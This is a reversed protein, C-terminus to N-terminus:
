LGPLKLCYFHIREYTQLPSSLTSASYHDGWLAETNLSGQRWVLGLTQPQRTKRWMKPYCWRQRIFVGTKPNLSWRWTTHVGKLHYRLLPQMDLYPWMFSSCRRPWFRNKWLYQLPARQLGRPHAHQSPPDTNIMVDNDSDDYTGAATVSAPM